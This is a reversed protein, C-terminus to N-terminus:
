VLGKDLSEVHISLIYYYITDNIIIIIYYM